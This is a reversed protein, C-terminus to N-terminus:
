LAANLVDDVNSGYCYDISVYFLNLFLFLLIKKETNEKCRALHNKSLVVIPSPRSTEAKKKNDKILKQNFFKLLYQQTGVCYM